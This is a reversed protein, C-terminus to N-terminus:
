SPVTQGKQETIEKRSFSNEEHFLFNELLKDQPSEKAYFNQKM